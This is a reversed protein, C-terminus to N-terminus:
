ALDEESGTEALLIFLEARRMESIFESFVNANGPIANM